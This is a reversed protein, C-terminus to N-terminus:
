RKAKPAPADPPECLVAKVFVYLSRNGPEPESGYTIGGALVRRGLPARLTTDVRHTSVQPRDVAAALERVVNAPTNAAPPNAPAEGGGERTQVEIVRSHVDLLVQNKGCLIPRVEVAPGEQITTTTPQYGSLGSPPNLPIVGGTPPTPMVENGVVPIMTVIFRSQRGAAVVVTQGNLCTVIAQYGPRVDNEEKAREQALRNWAADDVTLRAAARGNEKEASVPTLRHLEEDSLWLWHVEVSVIKRAAARRRVVALLSAIKRHNEKTTRALLLDGLVQLSSRGGVQDWDEPSILTAIADILQDYADSKASFITTEKRVYPKYYNGGSLLGPMSYTITPLQDPTRGDGMEDIRKSPSPAEFLLDGLDYAELVLPPGEDDREEPKTMRKYDEPTPKLPQDSVIVRDDADAARATAPL